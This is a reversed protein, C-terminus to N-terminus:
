HLLLMVVNPLLFHRYIGKCFKTKFELQLLFLMTFATMNLHVMLLNHSSLAHEQFGDLVVPFIYLSITAHPSCLLPKQTLRSQSRIGSRDSLVLRAESWDSVRGVGHNGARSFLAEVQRVRNSLSPTHLARLQTHLARM